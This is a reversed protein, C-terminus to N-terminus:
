GLTVAGNPTMFHARLGTQDRIVRTIPVPAILPPMRALISAPAHVELGTLRVPSTPLRASPHLAPPVDWQIITPLLGGEPPRGNGLATIRWQLEGRTMRSPQGVEYHLSALAADIDDTRALYHIFQPQQAIRAKMDPEDLMFSRPRPPEAQTPDAAILELYVTGGLNLLRNHTGRGEHQGGPQLSTGLRERLWAEGSDLDTAAIVLHDLAIFM